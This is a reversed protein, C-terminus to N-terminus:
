SCRRGRASSRRAARHDRCVRAAAGGGSLFWHKPQRKAARHKLSDTLSFRFFRHSAASEKVRASVGFCRFVSKGSTLPNEEPRFPAASKLTPPGTNGPMAHIFILFSVISCSLVREFGCWSWPPLIARTSGSQPLRGQTAAAHHFVPPCGRPTRNRPNPHPRAYRVLAAAPLIDAARAIPRSFHRVLLWPVLAAFFEGM